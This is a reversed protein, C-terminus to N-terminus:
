AGPALALGHRQAVPRNGPPPVRLPLRLWARALVGAVIADLDEPEGVLAGAFVRLSHARSFSFTCSFDTLSKTREFFYIQLLNTLLQSYRSRCGLFALM